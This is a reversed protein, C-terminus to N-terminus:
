PVRRAQLEALTEQEMKRLKEVLPGMRQQMETMSLQMVVPMKRIVAQGTPTKYFAIMGNVEEQTFSDRYIRIYLAELRGWDMEEKLLAIMRAQMDDIIQQQDPTIPHGKLSQQVGNKVMGDFQGVMGDVLKRVETVALLQAISEESPRSDAALVPPTLLVLALVLYKLKSM